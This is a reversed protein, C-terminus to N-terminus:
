GYADPSGTAGGGTALLGFAVILGVVAIYFTDFALEEFLFSACTQAALFLMLRGGGTAFPRTLLRWGAWLFVALFPLGMAFAVSAFGDHLSRVGTEGYLLAAKRGHDIGLPHEALLRISGVTTRLREDLNRALNGDRAFRVWTASSDDLRWALFAAGLALVLCAAATRRLSPRLADDLLLGILLVAAFVLLGGRNWTFLFSSGVIGCAAAAWLVGGRRPLLFAAAPALAAFIHGAGNAHGWLGAYRGGSTAANWASRPPALGWAALDVARGKQLVLVFLALAGGLILGRAFAAAGDGDRLALAVPVMGVAYLSYTAVVVLSANRGAAGHDVGGAFRLLFLAALLGYFALAAGPRGERLLMAPGLAAVALMFWDSLRYGPLGFAAPIPDFELCLGLAFLGAVAALRARGSGDAGENWATAAALLAM